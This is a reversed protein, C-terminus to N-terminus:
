SKKTRPKRPDNFNLRNLIDIVKKDYEEDWRPEIGEKVCQEYFRQFFFTIIAQRSGHSYPIVHRFFFDYINRDIDAQVRIVEKGCHEHVNHKIGNIETM